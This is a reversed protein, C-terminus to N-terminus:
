VERAYGMAFFYRALGERVLYTEGKYFQRVVFGDETGKRTQLMKIKVM